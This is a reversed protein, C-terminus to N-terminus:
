AAAVIVVDMGHRAPPRVISQRRAGSSLDPQGRRWMQGMIRRRDGTQACWLLDIPCGAPGCRCCLNIFDRRNASMDREKWPQVIEAAVDAGARRADALSVLVRNGCRFSLSSPRSRTTIEPTIGRRLRGLNELPLTNARGILFFSVAIEDM